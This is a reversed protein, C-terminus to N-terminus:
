LAPVNLVLNPTSTKLWYGKWARLTNDDNIPPGDLGVEWYRVESPYWGYLVSDLWSQTQAAEPYPETLGDTLNTVTCVSLLVDGERPQGIMHWGALPLQVPIPGPYAAYGRYNITAPQQLCLWYGEGVQMPGFESPDIDWYGVYSLLAGDYRWLNDTIPLGPFVAAPDDDLPQLPLSIMSWGAPLSVSVVPADPPLATSAVYIDKVGNTDGPLLNTADAEFCVYQGDPTFGALNDRGSNATGQTGSSTLNVRQNRGNQLDHVFVDSSNNLDYPVLNSALSCFMVYRGDASVAANGSAANAQAGDDSVSVRFRKATPRYYVFVDGSANTDNPVLNTASSDFVLYRGDTSLRTVWSHNDAPKGDYANSVIITEGTQCDHLFVDLYINSHLPSLNTADSIFAVFRGDGSISAIASSGNAQTGDSAVSVRTTISEQCDHLFIDGKNNTDGSVLNTSGSSFVVYRGDASMAPDLSVQNGQIGGSGVSCRITEGTICDHRFVDGKNNTDGVVLNSAYSTFVVYRGDTSIVLAYGSIGNAQAGDGAVNVRITEGTQRDHRFIDRAGNTDGEVLNSADSDFAVYRGDASIASVYSAGNSQQGDSAVSVRELVYASAGGAALGIALTIAVFLLSRTTASSV